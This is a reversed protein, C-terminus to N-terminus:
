LDVQKPGREDSATQADGIHILINAIATLSSAILKLSVGLSALLQDKTM